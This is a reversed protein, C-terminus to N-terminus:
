CVAWVFSARPPQWPLRLSLEDNWPQFESMLFNLPGHVGHRHADSVFRVGLTIRQVRRASASDADEISQRQDRHICPGFREVESLLVRDLFARLKAQCQVVAVCIRVWRM